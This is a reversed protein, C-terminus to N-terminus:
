EITWGGDVVLTHGTIFDSDSSALFVAAHAIDEPKGFRGLPTKALFLRKMEENERIEKTMNTEIIGPAIANVNINNKAFDLAMEKTLNIVAGKAACYGASQVFGVLGAISAMNIIKGEEHSIMHPIVAKSMRFIGSVDISLITNWDEETTTLMNGGSAIGANNVLIDITGFREVVDTVFHAIEASSTIDVTYIFVRKNGGEIERAVAELPEKRRGCIAINAGENAFARAIARGIGTGGGTVIATKQQLKMNGCEIDNDM